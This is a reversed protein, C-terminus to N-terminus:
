RNAIKLTECEALFGCTQSHASEDRGEDSTRASRMCSLGGERGRLESRRVVLVALDARRRACAVALEGLEAGEGCAVVDALSTSPM